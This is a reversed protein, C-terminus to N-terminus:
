LYDMTMADICANPDAGALLLLRVIEGANPDNILPSTVASHLPTGNEKAYMAVSAGHELLLCMSKISGYKACLHLASLGEQKTCVNSNAGYKLLLHVVEVHDLGELASHLATNGRGDLQGVEAGNELFWHMLELHGRSAANHLQPPTHFNAGHKLLLRVPEFSGAIVALDLVSRGGSTVAHVDAGHQEILLTILETGEHWNRAAVAHLATFNETARVVPSAGWGLLLHVVDIHRGNIAYWLATTDDVDIHHHVDAGSELLLHVINRHGRHSAIQLITYGETYGHGVPQRISKANVNAGHKVLLRAIDIRDDKAAIFLATEGTSGLAELDTCSDELLLSTRNIDGHHVAVHLPTDALLSPYRRSKTPGTM